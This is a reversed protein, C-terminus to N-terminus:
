TEAEQAIIQTQFSCQQTGIGLSHIHSLSKALRVRALGGDLM